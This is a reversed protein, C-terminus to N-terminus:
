RNHVPVREFYGVVCLELKLTVEMDASINLIAVTTCATAVVNDSYTCAAFLIFSENTAM